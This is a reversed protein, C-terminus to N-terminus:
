NASENMSITFNEIHSLMGLWMSSKYTMIETITSINGSLNVSVDQWSKERQNKINKQSNRFSIHFTKSFLRMKWFHDAKKTKSKRCIQRSLAAQTKNKFLFSEMKESCELLNITLFKVVSILIKDTCVIVSLVIIVAFVPDTWVLLLM